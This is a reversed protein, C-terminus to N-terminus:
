KRSIVQKLSVKGSVNQGAIVDEERFKALLIEGAGQRDRDYVIWITGDKDQIGDPYSVWEREDLLLGENWSVGDDNSIQATLHSRGTFKYHNVLLLNGSQLRRIFFRSAPNSISGAKSESWTKGKDSSFSEWLYNVGSRMLMWLKGNKLEVIMNELGWEPTTVNGYLSWTEGKDSTIAVGQKGKDFTFWDFVKDSAHTVPFIWEGTSLVTPKTSRFVYPINFNLIFENSWTLIKADPNECIRAYVAHEDTKNSRNFIYWLQRETDIWLCPDYARLNNHPAAIIEIDSFTVGGDDSYSLFCTNEPDPEGTGGSYWTVFIRGNNTKEISPIGQWLIPISIKEKEDKEKNCSLLFLTSILFLFLSLKKKINM